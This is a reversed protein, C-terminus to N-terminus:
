RPGCPVRPESASLPHQTGDVEVAQGRWHITRNGAVAFDIEPTALNRPSFRIGDPVAADVLLVRDGGLSLLLDNGVVAFRWPASGSPRSEFSGGPGM